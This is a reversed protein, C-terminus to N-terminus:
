SLIEVLHPEESKKGEDTLLSYVESAFCHVQNALNCVSVVLFFM